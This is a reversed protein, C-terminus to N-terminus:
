DFRLPDSEQAELLVQICLDCVLYCCSQLGEVFLSLPWSDYLALVQECEALIRLELLAKVVRQHEM